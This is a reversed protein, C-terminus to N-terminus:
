EGSGGAGAKQPNLSPDPTPADERDPETDGGRRRAEEAGARGEGADMSKERELSLAMMELRMETERDLPLVPRKADFALAEDDLVALDRLGMSAGARGALRLADALGHDYNPRCRKIKLVLEMLQLELTATAIQTKQKLEDFALEPLAGHVQDRVERVFELVGAIDVKPALAEVKGNGPIFWVNDGSKVLDSGEAGTVVWQPEANKKIIDALYSALENVEDLLPIAKQYTSEGWREGTKIHEVEIYPVFGLENKYEGDRGGFKEPQGDKFTRIAETTIVEAYEYEKGTRDMRCDVYIAMQPTDDYDGQEILLLCTPKVPKIQVMGQERLDSMKLGSVGYQAGYHVYLVGDRDWDSWDLVQNLAPLWAKNFPQETSGDPLAWDGPVIGADVDVARSLPLYLPKIGRYLRPWMWGFQERLRKYISGDYYSKRRSLERMREDWRAKFPKFEDTDWLSSVKKSAM